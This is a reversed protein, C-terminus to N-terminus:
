TTINLGKMPRSHVDILESLRVTRKPKTKLAVLQITAVDGDVSVINCLRWIYEFRGAGRKWANTRWLHSAEIPKGYVNFQKM